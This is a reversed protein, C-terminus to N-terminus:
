IVRNAQTAVVFGHHFTEKLIRGDQVVPLLQAAHLRKCGIADLQTVSGLGDAIQM